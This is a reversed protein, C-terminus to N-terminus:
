GIVVFSFEVVEAPTTVGEITITYVNNATTWHHRLASDGGNRVFLGFLQALSPTDDVTIIINPNTVPAVGFTVAFQGRMGNSGAVITLAVGAGFASLDFNAPSLPLSKNGILRRLTVDRFSADKSANQAALSDLASSGLTLSDNVTLDNVALRDGGTRSGLYTMIPKPHYPLRVPGPVRALVSSRTRTAM